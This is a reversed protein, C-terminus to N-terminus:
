LILLGAIRYENMAAIAINNKAPEASAIVAICGTPTIIALREIQGKAIRM